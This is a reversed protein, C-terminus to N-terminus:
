ELTRVIFSDWSRVGTNSCLLGHRTATQNFSETFTRVVVGDISLVISPGSLTAKLSYNAKLPYTSRGSAVTTTVGAVTRQFLWITRTLTFRLYNTRNSSRLILGTGDAGLNMASEVEVDAGLSEIVARATNNTTVTGAGGLSLVGTEVAWKSGLPGSGDPVRQQLSGSGAFQDAVLIRSVPLPQTVTDPEPIVVPEAVPEIVEVVPEPETTEPPNVVPDPVVVVTEPEPVPETIVIGAAPDVLAQVTALGFAWESAITNYVSREFTLPLTAGRSVMYGRLTEEGSPDSPVDAISTLASIRTQYAAYETSAARRAVPATSLTAASSHLVYDPMGPRDGFNQHYDFMAYPEGLALAAIDRKMANKHVIVTDIGRNRSPITETTHWNRNTDKMPAFATGRWLGALEGTPNVFPYVVTTYQARYSKAEASSSHLIWDIAAQLAVKNQGEYPHQGSVLMVLKTTTAAPDKIVFGFLPMDPIARSFANSAPAGSQYGIVFTGPTVESPTPKVLPDTFVDAELWEYFDAVPFHENISVYVVDETFVANNKAAIKWTSSNTGTRTHQEFSNWKVANPQYSWVLKISQFSVLDGSLIMKGSGPSILPLIFEPNRGQVGRLAFLVNRWRTAGGVAENSHARPVIIVRAGDFTSLTTDINGGDKPEAFSGVFTEQANIGSSAILGVLLVLLTNRFMRPVFSYANQHVGM